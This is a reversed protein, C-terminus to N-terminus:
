IGVSGNSLERQVTLRIPSVNAIYSWNLETGIYIRNYRIAVRGTTGSGSFPDLILDGPKSGALICPEVLKEPFTAFHAYSTPQTNITWVSRKNRGSINGWIKDMRDTGFDNRKVDGFKPKNGPAHPERQLPELIAKADYYYRPSKTLLFLYEHSKTPRDTVSEPMPNPKSWIITSRCIWGDEMLARKVLDPIGLEQKAQTANSLRMAKDYLETYHILSGYLNSSYLHTVDIAALDIRGDCASFAFQEKTAKTIRLNCPNRAPPDLRDRLAIPQDIFYIDPLSELVADFTVADGIAQGDPIIETIPKGTEEITFTSDGSKGSWYSVGAIGLIPKGNADHNSIIVSPYYGADLVIELDTVNRSVFAVPCGIWCYCPNTLTHLVQCFDNDRQKITVREIGLLSLFVRYPFGNDQLPVDGGQATIGITAANGFILPSSKMTRNFTNLFNSSIRRSSQHIKEDQYHKNSGVGDGWTTNGAPSTAYSDGLNLWLTGDDKMVRWVERFVSVLNSVYEEPSQELGIQGDIGYDRLGYYPPSTICCQVTKSVIPLHLANANVIM